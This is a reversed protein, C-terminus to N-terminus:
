INPNYTFTKILSCAKASGLAGFLTSFTGTGTENTFGTPCSGEFFDIIKATVAISGGTTVQTMYVFPGTIKGANGIVPGGNVPSAAIKSVNAVINTSDSLTADIYTGSGGASAVCKNNTASFSGLCASFPTGDNLPVAPYVGFRGKYNDFTSSWARVDIERAKDRSSAGAGVWATVSIGVLIGLVIIVILLEVVTFGHQSRKM